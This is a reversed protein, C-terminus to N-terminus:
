HVVGDDAANALLDKVCSSKVIKIQWEDLSDLNEILIESIAQHISFVDQAGLPKSENLRDYSQIKFITGDEIKALHITFVGDAVEPFKSAIENAEATEVVKDESM